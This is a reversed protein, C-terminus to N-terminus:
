KELIVIKRKNKFTLVQNKGSLINHPNNTISIIKYIEWM